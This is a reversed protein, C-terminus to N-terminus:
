FVRMAESDFHVARLLNYPKPQKEVISLSVSRRGLLNKLLLGVPGAGVICVDCRLLRQARWACAMPTVTRGMPSLRRWIVSYKLGIGTLILSTFLKTREGHDM